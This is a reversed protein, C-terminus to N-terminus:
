FRLRSKLIKSISTFFFIIMQCAKKLLIGLLVNIKRIPILETYYASVSYQRQRDENNDSTDTKSQTFHHISAISLVLFIEKHFYTRSFIKNHLLVLFSLFILPIYLVRCIKYKKSFDLNCIDMKNMFQSHSNLADLEKGKLSGDSNFFNVSSSSKSVLFLTDFYQIPQFYYLVSFLNLTRFNLRVFAHNLLHAYGEGDKQMQRSLQSM